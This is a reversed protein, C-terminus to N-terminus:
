TAQAKAEQLNLKKPKFEIVGVFIVPYTRQMKRFANKDLNASHSTLFAWWISEELFNQATLLAILEDTEPDASPRLARL